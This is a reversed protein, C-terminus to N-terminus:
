LLRKIISRKPKFLQRKKITNFCVRAPRFDFDVPHIDSYELLLQPQYMLCGIINRYAASDSLTM